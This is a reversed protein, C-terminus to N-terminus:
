AQKATKFIVREVTQTCTCRNRDITHSYTLTTNVDTHRAFEKVAELKEGGQLALTVATHRLSHACLRDSDLGAERLRDKVTKSISRTSLRGGGNRNGLSAFLPATLEVKGREDLYDQLAQKLIPSLRLYETGSDDRGKGHIYLFTSRERKVLDGVRARAIEICRLGGIAMLAVIAYDRRGKLGDRDIRELVDRVQKATLADRRHLQRHAPAKVREAINDYLGEEAAWRFFLRVAIIYAHITSPKKGNQILFNRYAFIHERMPQNIKRVELYHFFRGLNYRYVNMSRPRVNLSLFFDEFHVGTMLKEMSIGGQIKM